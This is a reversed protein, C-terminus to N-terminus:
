RANQGQGKPGPRHERIRPTGAAAAGAAAPEKEVAAAAGAAAGAAAPEAAKSRDATQQVVDLEEQPRVMLPVAGNSRAASQQVVATAASRAASGVSM